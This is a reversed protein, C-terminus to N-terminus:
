LWGENIDYIKLINNTKDYWIRGEFNGSAPESYSVVPKLHDILNPFTVGRLNGGENILIEGENLSISRLGDSDSVLISNPNIYAELLSLPMVTEVILGEDADCSFDYLTVPPSKLALRNPGVGVAYLRRLNGGILEGVGEEYFVTDDGRVKSIGYLFNEGEEFIIPNPELLGFIKEDPILAIEAVNRTTKGVM